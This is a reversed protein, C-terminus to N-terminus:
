NETVRRAKRHHTNATKPSRGSNGATRFHRRLQRAQTHSPDIRLIESLHEIAAKRDGTKDLLVALGYRTAADDPLLGVVQQLRERAGSSNGNMELKAAENLYHNALNKRALILKPDIAVARELHWVGQRRSERDDSRALAVGLANHASANRPDIEVAEKLYRIGQRSKKQKLLTAAYELLFRTYQPKYLLARRFYEEAESLKGQSSLVKGLLLLEEAAQPCQSVAIRLHKEAELPNNLSSYQFQAYSDHFLYHTSHNDLATKYQALVEQQGERRTYRAKLSVVAKSLRGLQEVNDLQNAFPPRQMKRLLGEAIKLRNWGTYALRRACDQESLVADGSAYRSIGQPLLRQVQEFIGRAVRYTGSFNLHVHDYFLGNGPIQEPSNAEITKLSDVLFIGQDSKGGAVRRITQNIRTDARFRLTDLERAKVYRRKATKFDVMAWYCRALRFHLEAYDPDIKEAQLFREVAAEVKGQKRLTEGEDVMEEWGQIDEDPIGARHLSAFPASDKLNAGVTSVIVPIRSKQAIRCIDSLNEEFHHYVTEMGPDTARVQHDLFMAMGRWNESPARNRGPMKGMVGAVLQGLRTGKLAIGARIVSLNSALSSFITGAGYPGVVENNGLYIVFLDSELRSCDRVIPLVVHSNTATIAGNVVEFDVGPYQDRLMAELMRTMGYGPAPTGQAASGGFVFVRYTGETKGPPLSFYTSKTTLQPGLFRWAFYPNSLIRKQGDVKQKFTFGTPVGYDFVRLGIELGLLLLAPIVFLVAFRFLWLRLGKPQPRVQKKPPKQQTQQKQQTTKKQQSQQAQLSSKKRKAQLKKKARQRNKKTM